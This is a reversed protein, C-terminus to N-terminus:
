FGLRRQQVEQLVQSYVTTLEPYQEKWKPIMYHRLIIRESRGCCDFWGVNLLCPAHLSKMMGSLYSENSDFGLVRSFLQAIKPVRFAGLNPIETIKVSRVHRTGLRRIALNLPAFFVPTVELPLM